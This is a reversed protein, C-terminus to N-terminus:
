GGYSSRSKQQRHVMVALGIQATSEFSNSGNIMSVVDLLAKGLLNRMAMLEARDVGLLEPTGQWWHTQKALKSDIEAIAKTLEVYSKAPESELVSKVIDSM